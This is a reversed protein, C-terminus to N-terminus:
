KSVKIDQSFRYVEKPIKFSITRKHTELCKGTIKSYVKKTQKVKYNQWMVRYYYNRCNAGKKTPGTFTHGSTYVIKTAIEGSVKGEIQSKKFPTGVTISLKANHEVAMKTTYTEGKAVSTIQHAKGNKLGGAKKPKGTKIKVKTLLGRNVGDLDDSKEEYEVDSSKIGIDSLSPEGAIIESSEIEADEFGELPNDDGEYEPGEADEEPTFELDWDDVDEGDADEEDVDENTTGDFNETSESAKVKSFRSSTIGVYGGVVVGMTLLMLLAVLAYKKKM